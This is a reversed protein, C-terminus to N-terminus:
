LYPAYATFIRRVKFVYSEKISSFFVKKAKIEIIKFKWFKLYYSSNQSLHQIIVSQQRPPLPYDTVREPRKSTPFYVWTRLSSLGNSTAFSSLMHLSYHWRFYM